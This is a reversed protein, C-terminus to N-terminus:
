QSHKTCPKAPRGLRYMLTKRKYHFTVASSIIVQLIEHREEVTPINLGEAQIGLDPATIQGDREPGAQQLVSLRDFQIQLPRTAAPATATTSDDQQGQVQQHQAENVCDRRRRYSDQKTKRRAEKREEDTAFKAPRGRGKRQQPM